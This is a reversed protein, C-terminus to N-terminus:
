GASDRTASASGHDAWGPTEIADATFPLHCAAAGTSAATTFAKSRM